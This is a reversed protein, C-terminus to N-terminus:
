FVISVAVHKISYNPLKKSENSELWVNRQSKKEDAVAKTKKPKIIKKEERLSGM